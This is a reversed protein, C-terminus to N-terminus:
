PPSTVASVKIPKRGLDIQIDSFVRKFDPCSFVNDVPGLGPLGAIGPIAVM